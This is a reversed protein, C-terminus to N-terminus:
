FSHQGPSASIPPLGEWKPRKGEGRGRRNMDGIYLKIVLKKVLLEHKLQFTRKFDM